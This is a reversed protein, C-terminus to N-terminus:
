LVLGRNFIRCGKYSQLNSMRAHSNTKMTMFSSLAINKTGQFHVGAEPHNAALDALPGWTAKDWEAAESGSTSVSSSNIHRHENNLIM